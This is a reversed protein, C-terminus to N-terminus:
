LNSYKVKNGENTGKIDPKEEALIDMQKRTLETQIAKRHVDREMEKKKLNYISM